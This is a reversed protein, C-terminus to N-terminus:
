ACAQTQPLQAWKSPMQKQRWGETQSPAQRDKSPAFPALLSALAGTVVWPSRRAPPEEGQPFSWQPALLLVLCPSNTM